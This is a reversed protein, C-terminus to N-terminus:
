GAPSWYDDAMVIYVLMKITEGYYTDGYPNTALFNWLKDTWSQDVAAMAAVGVPDNAARAPQV